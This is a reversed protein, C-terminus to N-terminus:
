EDDKKIFEGLFNLYFDSGCNPCASYYGDPEAEIEIRQKSQCAPCTMLLPALASLGRVGRLLLDRNAYMKQLLELAQWPELQTDGISLGNLTVTTEMDKERKAAKQIANEVFDTERGEQERLIQLTEPSFRYDRRQRREDPDKTPRVM